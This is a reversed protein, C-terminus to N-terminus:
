RRTDLRSSADLERVDPLSKKEAERRLADLEEKTYLQQDHKLLWKNVYYGFVFLLFLEM